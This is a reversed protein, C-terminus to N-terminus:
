MSFFSSLIRRSLSARQFDTRAVVAVIGTRSVNSSAILVFSVVVWVRIM